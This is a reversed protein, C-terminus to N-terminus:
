KEKRGPIIGELFFDENSNNKNTIENNNIKFSNNQKDNDNIKEKNEKIDDKSNNNPNFSTNNKKMEEKKNEEEIHNSKEENEYEYEYEDDEDEEEEMKEAAQREEIYEQETEVAVEFIEVQRLHYEIKEGLIDQLNEVEFFNNIEGLVCKQKLFSKQPTYIVWNTNNNENKYKTKLFCLIDGKKETAMNEGLIDYIDLHNLSVLFSSGPIEEYYKGFFGYKIERDVYIGFRADEETYFLTLTKLCDKCKKKVVDANDGHESARYILDFFAHYRNKKEGLIKNKLMRLEKKTFIIESNVYKKINEKRVIRLPKPPRRKKVKIKKKIKENKEYSEKEETEQKNDKKNDKKNEKLKEEQIHNKSEKSQEETKDHNEKNEILNNKKTKNNDIDLNKSSETNNINNKKNSINSNNLNNSNGLNNDNISNKFNNYKDSGLNNYDNENNNINNINNSINNLNLNNNEDENNDKNNGIDSYINNNIEYKKSNTSKYSDKMKINPKKKTKKELTKELNKILKESSKDESDVITKIKSNRNNDKDIDTCIIEENINKTKKGKKNEEKKKNKSKSKREKKNKNETNEIEENNDKNNSSKRPTMSEKIIKNKSKSKSKKRKEKNKNKDKNKKDSEYINNDKNIFLKDNEKKFKHIGQENIKNKHISSSSSNVEEKIELLNQNYNTNNSNMTNFTNTDKNKISGLNIYNKENNINSINSIKNIDNFNNMNNYINNENITETESVSIMPEYVRLKERLYKIKQNKKSNDDELKTIRKLISEMSLMIKENGMLSNNGISFGGPNTIINNNNYNNNNRLQKNVNQNESTNQTVELVTIRDKLDTLLNNLEKISKVGSSVGGRSIDTEVNKIKAQPVHTIQKRKDINNINKLIQSPDKHKNDNLSKNRFLTLNVDGFEKNIAVHLILTLINSNREIDYNNLQLINAMDELIDEIKEFFKFYKSLEQFEYLSFYNSYEKSNDSYDEVCNIIIKIKNDAIFIQLHCNLYEIKRKFRYHIVPKKLSLSEDDETRTIQLM